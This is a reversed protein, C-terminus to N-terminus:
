KNFKFFDTPRITRCTKKRVEPNTASTKRADIQMSDDNDSIQSTKFAKKLNIIQIRRPVVAEPKPKDRESRLYDDNFKLCIAEQAPSAYKHPNIQNIFEINTPGGNRGEMAANVRLGRKLTSNINRRKLLDYIFRSSKQEIDKKKELRKSKEANAIQIQADLCNYIAECSHVWDELTKAIKSIYGPPVDRGQAYDIELFRRDQFLKGHIINLTTLMKFNITCLFPTYIAFLHPYLAVLMKSNASTTKEIDENGELTQNAILHFKHNWHFSVFVTSCFGKSM